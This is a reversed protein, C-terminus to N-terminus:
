TSRTSLPPCARCLAQPLEGLGVVETVAGLRIAAQPMGFVVSSAQDQALTLGGARHLELLGAAGDEGMGTMVVGVARHGYVKALSSLLRNGSPAHLGLPPVTGLRGDPQAVLDLRDPAFYVVGPQPEVETALQVKLATLTSLHRILGAGFGPAIHQAVLIPAPFGAPMKALLTALAAPGGTSVALGVVDRRGALPPQQSAPKNRYYRTVVPIEAMLRVAEAVRAGFRRAEQEGGAGKAILELAGVSMARMSLEVEEGDSVACVVLIRCPAEAMIVETAQFGNLGPMQIDMTMVDPRLSKALRVAEHGDAAQGVVEIGPELGLMLTLADRMTRSDDAVVVRIRSV